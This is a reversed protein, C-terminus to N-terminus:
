GRWIAIVEDHWHPGEPYHELTGRIFDFDGTRRPAWVGLKEKVNPVVVMQTSLNTVRVEHGSQPLSWPEGKWGAGSRMGFVHPRDTGRIAQRIIEFASPAFVDDDDMFLLWDGTAAQMGRTRPTAAMDGTEDRQVILEDGHRLQTAISALTRTLDRGCTAVIVSLRCGPEPPSLPKTAMVLGRETREGPRHECDEQVVYGAAQLTPAVLRPGLEVNYKEHAAPATDHAFITRTGAAVLLQLEEGVSYVSHDGDLFAFDFGADEKLLDVSRCQHVKLRSDGGPVYHDILRQLEPRIEIDCLHVEGVHGALMADLFASTSFGHCCGIELVRGYKGTSLEDHIMRIHRLDAYHSCQPDDFLHVPPTFPEPPLTQSVEYFREPLPYRAAWERMEAVRGDRPQGSWHLVANEPADAFLSPSRDTWKQWNAIRPLLRYPLGSALLQAMTHHQESCHGIPMPRTPPLLLHKHSAPCIMVGCNLMFPLADLPPFGMARRFEQYDAKAHPGVFPMEDVAGFEGPECLSFLDVCEPRLLVDVDVYAIREYHDLVRPIAFKGSMPWRPDGPWRLPVFDAGVREAYALM